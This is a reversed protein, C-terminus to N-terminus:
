ATQRKQILTFSPTTLLKCKHPKQPSIDNQKLLTETKLSILDLTATFNILPFVRGWNFNNYFDTTWYCVTSRYSYLLLM